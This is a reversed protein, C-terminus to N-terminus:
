ARLGEIHLPKELLSTGAENIIRLVAMNLEEAIELYDAWVVTDVYAFAEIVLSEEGIELFRVRQGNDLVREHDAFLTRINNLIADLQEPTTELRIRLNPRYLIKTRASYNDIPSNALQSNPVAIVTDALTRV